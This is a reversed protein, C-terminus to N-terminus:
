GYNKVIYKLTLVGTIMINNNKVVALCPLNIEEKKSSFFLPPKLLVM